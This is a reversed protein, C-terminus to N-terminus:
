RPRKKFTEEGGLKTNQVNQVLSQKVGGDAHDDAAHGTSKAASRAAELSGNNPQM